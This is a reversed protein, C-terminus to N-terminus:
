LHYEIVSEFLISAFSDESLSCWCIMSAFASVWFWVSSTTPLTPSIISSSLYSLSEVQLGVTVVISPM